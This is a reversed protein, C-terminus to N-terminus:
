LFLNEKHAKVSESDIKVVLGATVLNSLYSSYSGGSASVSAEESVIEHSVPEGDRAVIAKLMRQAGPRLLPMWIALVEDTNTPAPPVDNGLYAIGKATAKKKDGDQEVFLNTRLNSMYSSFSGGSRKVKAQAAIQSDPLAKPYWQTLVKLMRKAGPRLNIDSQDGYSAIEAAMTSAGPSRPKLVVAKTAVNPAAVPKTPEVTVVDLKPLKPPKLRQIHVATKEIGKVESQMEAVRRAFEDLIKKYQRHLENRMVKIAAKDVVPIEVREPKTTVPRKKLQRITRDQEAIWAKAEKFDAVEKKREVQKSIYLAKLKKAAQSATIKSVKAPREGPKPTRGAHYTVRERAHFEILEEQFEPSLFWADGPKMKVLKGIVQKLLEKDKVHHEMWDKVSGIDRPGIMGMAFLNDIQELYDKHVKAPRQSVLAFGLGIGRGEEILKGMAYLVRKQEDFRLTQPLFNHAEEFAIFRPTENIRFLEEAFDACWTQRATYHMQKMEIVASINGKVIIQAAERGDTHEIPIDGNKGGIILAEIGSLRNTIRGESDRGYRIGWHADPPDLVVFKQKRLAFIELMAGLLNSKGKGRKALIGFGQTVADRHLKVKRGRSTEGLYNPIKM